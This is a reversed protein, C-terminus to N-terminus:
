PAFDSRYFRVNILGIGWTECHPGAVHGKQFYFAIINNDKMSM